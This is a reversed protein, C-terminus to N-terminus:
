DPIKLMQGPYIKDPDKLIDRNADFIRPYDSAKGYYQKAIASLTDGKKVEHTRGTGAPKPGGAQTVAPGTGHGPPLPPGTLVGGGTTPPLPGTTTATTTAVHIMNLTNDTEVKANFMEMARTKARMDQADGTLTVTKGDVKAALNKVGSEKRVEDLAKTVKEDFSMGFM